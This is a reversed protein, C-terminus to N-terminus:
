TLTSYLLKFIKNYFKMHLDHEWKNAAMEFYDLQFSLIIFFHVFIALCLSKNLCIVYLAFQLSNCYCLLFAINNALM